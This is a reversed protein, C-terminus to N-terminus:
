AASAEAVVQETLGFESLSYRHPPRRRSLVRAMRDQTLATFPLGLMAYVRGMEARWDSEMAAYEVDVQPVRTQTLAARARRDRLATKRLWERGIWHPDVSNSQLEMQNRVLSASSAVVAAPDRHLCVLRADPFVELLAPLDQTFQPLKLVWPRNAAGGRLWALTQLLAKFERYIPGTDATECHAAFTPVRWQAEFTAGFLSLNHLGFEEDPQGAGTPHIATFGPNLWRLGLLAVVARARRDDIPLSPVPRWSEYFRTHTLRPDTALLRQMRTTGSRMQGVILIPQEIPIDLIQPHNRWLAQARFRQEVSAVLQGHAITQGLPTLAATSALDSALIGLRERWAHDQPEAPVRRQAKAILAEPDLMPRPLWGNRWAHELWENLRRRAAARSTPM